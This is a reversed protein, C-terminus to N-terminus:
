SANPCIKGSGSVDKLDFFFCGTTVASTTNKRFMKCMKSSVTWGTFIKTLIDEEKYIHLNEWLHRSNLHPIRFAISNLAWSSKSCSLVSCKTIFHACAGLCYMILTLKLCPCVLKKKVKWTKRALTQNQQLELAGDRCRQPWLISSSPSSPTPLTSNWAPLPLFCNITLSHLINSLLSASDCLYTLPSSPFPFSVLWSGM